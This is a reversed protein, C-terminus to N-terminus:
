IKISTDQPYLFQQSLYKNYSLQYLNSPFQNILISIVMVDQLILAGAGVCMRDLQDMKICIVFYHLQYYFVESKSM